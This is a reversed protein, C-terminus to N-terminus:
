THDRADESTQSTRINKDSPLTHETCLAIAISSELGLILCPCIGMLAQGQEAGEQM